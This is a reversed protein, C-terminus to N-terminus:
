PSIPGEGGARGETLLLAGRKNFLLLRANSVTSSGSARFEALSFLIYIIKNPIIKTEMQRKLIFGTQRRSYSILWIIVFMYPYLKPITKHM